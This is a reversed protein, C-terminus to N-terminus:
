LIKHSGFKIKNLNPDGQRWTTETRKRMSVAWRKPTEAHVEKGQEQVTGAKLDVLVVLAGGEFSFSSLTDFGTRENVQPVIQKLYQKKLM